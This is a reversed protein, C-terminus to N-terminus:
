HALGGFGAPAQGQSTTYDLLVDNKDFRLTTSNTETDAGGVFPGVVPIFTSARPTSKVYSYVVTKTGDSNASQYNPTGLLQVAQAYTTQGARLSGVSAPDVKTGVSMCGSLFLLAILCGKKM